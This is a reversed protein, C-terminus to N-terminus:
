IATSEVAKEIIRCVTKVEDDKLDPYNPLCLGTDYLNEAVPCYTKNGNYPPNYYIPPFPLRTQIGSERLLEKSAERKVHTNFKVCTTWPCMRGIERQFSVHEGILTNYLSHIARKREIILNLRKLQACGFAAQMETMRYNFGIISHTDMGYSKGQQRLLRARNALSHEKVYLAGGEGGTTITKNEFFSFAGFDALTGCKKDEYESGLSECADEILVNKLYKYQCPNGFLDVTIKYGDNSIANWTSPEIDDITMFVDEEADLYSLTNATSIFTTAPIHVIKHSLRDSILVTAIHLAATGSSVAIINEKDVGLFNALGEEFADVFVHQSLRGSAVAQSVNKIEESTISPKSFPIM